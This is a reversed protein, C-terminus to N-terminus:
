YRTTWIMDASGRRADGYSAEFSWRQSLRYELQMENQNERLFPDNGFRGVYSVYLDDGLYTGAELQLGRLGEGPDINLVDIPLRGMITSQLKDALLGGLLSAAQSSPSPVASSPADPPRGTMVMALLDAQAYEPHEPSTIDIELADVPGSLSVVVTLDAHRPRHVARVDLRPQDPPGTFRLLSSDDLVFRRGLVEVQGRRVLVTGFISPQPNTLLVFQPGLGLELNIDPGRVWLNRPANVRLEAVRDAPGPPRGGSGAQNAPDQLEHRALLRQRAQELAAHKEAQAGDLPDDGWYLVVDGLRELSQVQQRKGPALRVDAEDLEAVLEVREVSARGSLRPAMSLTAIRQGDTRIPFRRLDARAEIKFGAGPEREASGTLRATGGDSSATLEELVLRRDDGNLLLHINGYEGLGAVVLRGDKWQLRGRVRPAGLSGEIDAQAALRGEIVRVQDSLGALPTLDYRDARLRATVPLNKLLPLAGAPLPYGLDVRSNATLELFGGDAGDLRLELHPRRDAYEVRLHARGLPVGQLSVDDIRAAVTLRPSGLNGELQVRAQGTGGLLRARQGRGDAPAVLRQLDLPGVQGDLSLPARALAARDALRTTALALSARLSAVTRNARSVSLQATLGQASDRAQVELHADTPPIGPARLGALAIRLSGVPSRPTGRADMSLSVTGGVGAGRGALGALTQLPLAELAAHAEFPQDYFQSAPPPRRLLEGLDLPARLSVTGTRGLTRVRLDATLPSGPAAAAALEVAGVPHGAAVLDPVAARVELRPRSFTGGLTAELSARGAIQRDKSGLAALLRDLPLSTTRLSLALDANPPPPFARPLDFRTTVQAGLAQAQMRGEVRVRGVRADFDLALDRLDAVRGASVSGRAQLLPLDPSGTAEISADLRGALAPLTASAIAPLRGLDIRELDARARLRGGSRHLDLALRQVDSRLRLGEVVLAAGTAIRAPATMRWSAGPYDVTLRDLALADLAPSWRGAIALSLPQPRQLRLSARFARNDSTAVELGIQELQRSGIRASGLTLSGNLLQPRHLDPARVRLSLNRVEHERFRVRGFRGSATLRPQRWPGDVRASLTGQGGIPLPAGATLSRGAQRLSRAQLAVELSLDSHDARGRASLSLGPLAAVLEELRYEGDRARARLRVPGAPRGSVQGEPVQLDIEGNMSAMDPGGGRGVLSFSFASPPGKVLLASLDVDRGEVRLGPSRWGDTELGGKVQFRGGATDIAVDARVVPGSRRLTGTAEIAGRLPWTPALARALDPTLRLTRLSLALEQGLEDTARLDAALRSDGLRVDVSAQGGGGWKGQLSLELPAPHPALSRGRLKLTAGLRGARLDYRGEGDAELATLRAQPPRQIREGPSGASRLEIEGDRLVLRQLAVVLDAPEGPPSPARPRVALARALNLGRADQALWLRPRQVKVVRLELRSRLLSLPAIVVELREIRAVVAGEPDRLVIGTLVLRDMGLRFGDVALGGAILDNAMPLARGLLARNGPRSNLVLVGAVLLLIAGLLIGGLLRSGARLVRGASM